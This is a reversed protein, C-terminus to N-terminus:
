PRSPRVLNDARRREARIRSREDFTCGGWIGVLEVHELAYDLCEARAPCRQCTLRAARAAGRTGRFWDRVGTERCAARVYWSPPPGLLNEWTLLVRSSGPECYSEDGPLEAM